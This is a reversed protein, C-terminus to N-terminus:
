GKPNKPEGVVMWHTGYRDSGCGFYGAFFTPGPPMVQRGGDATLAEFVRRGEDATAYSLSLAFGQPREYMGAPSDSAMIYRGNLNLSAHMIREADGPGCQGEPSEGYKMMMDMSGGLTQQYFRMAQACNGDFFIYADVQPISM